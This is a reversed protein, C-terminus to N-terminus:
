LSDGCTATKTGVPRWAQIKEWPVAYIVPAIKTLCEYTPWDWCPIHIVGSKIRVEKTPAEATRTGDLRANYSVM